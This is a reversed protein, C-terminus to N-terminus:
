DCLLLVGIHSRDRILHRCGFTQWLFGPNGNDAAAHDTNRCGKEKGLAANGDGQKFLTFNGPFLRAAVPAPAAAGPAVAAFHRQDHFAHAKPFAHICACTAFRSESYFSNDIGSFFFFLHSTIGFPDLNGALM